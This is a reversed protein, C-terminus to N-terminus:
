SDRGRGRIFGSITIYKNGKACAYGFNWDQTIGGKGENVFYPIEYKQAMKKIYNCPTSTAIIANSKVNQSMVSKICAELYPSERYACIVFIHSEQNEM